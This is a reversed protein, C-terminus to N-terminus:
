YSHIINSITKAWTLIDDIEKLNPLDKNKLSKLDISMDIFLKHAILFLNEDYIKDLISHICISCFEYQTIHSKIPNNYKISYNFLQSIYKNLSKTNYRIEYISPYIFEVFNYFDDKSIEKEYTNKSLFILLEPFYEYACYSFFYFINENVDDSVNLTLGFDFIVLKNENKCLQINGPHLDGHLYGTFLMSNLLFMGLAKKLNEDINYTNITVSDIYEMVIINNNCDCYEEYIKPIMIHKNNGYIENFKKISNIENKLDLQSELLLKINKLKKYLNISKFFNFYSICSVFDDIIKIDIKWKNLNKKSLVKIAIDKNNITSKYVQAITGSGILTCNNFKVNNSIITNKISDEHIYNEYLYSLNNSFYNSILEPNTSLLQGIKGFLPSYDCLNKFIKFCVNKNILNALYILVLSTSIRIKRYNM